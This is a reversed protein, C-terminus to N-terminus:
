TTAAALADSLTLTGEYLARGLICGAVPLSALRRIDDATSVGGSAIVPTRVAGALSAMAEFNPGDLMGDCLIDTYVIAGLPLHDMQRALNPADTESLELWGHTAVKGHRADLGLVIREPFASCTDAFWDPDELARTGVIVRTIGLEFLQRVTETTRVGGGVEVPVDVADRIRRLPELNQPAGDRAGDLDVVHLFSAGQDVWQMAVGAPDDAFVRQRQYDGQRLRVCRGDMLDIAPIILM